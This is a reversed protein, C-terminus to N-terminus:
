PYEKLNFGFRELKESILDGFATTPTNFGVPLNKNEILCELCLLVFNVTCQNGPDGQGTLQFKKQKGTESTAFIDAKFFGNKILKESPGQGPKPLILKLPNLHNSNKFLYDFGQMFYQYTMSTLHSFHKSILLSEQYDFNQSYGQHHNLSKTRFVIKNNIEEMFFPAVHINTNPKLRIIEEPSFYPRENPCLYHLNKIDEATLNKGINIASAITGGNIGGKAQYIVHVSKLKENLQDNVYKKAVFVALDSPVSDFGAFPVLCSGNQIADEQFNEIMSKAFNIEGTIDLYHVGNKACSEVINPAYKAFPGAFNCVVNMKSITEEVEQRDNNNLEVFKYKQANETPFFQKFKQSSRATFTLDFRHHYDNDILHQCFRRGVFGTAGVVALKLKNMKKMVMPKQEQFKNTRQYM